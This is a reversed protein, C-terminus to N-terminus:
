QRQRSRQPRRNQAQELPTAWKCNGPEYDGDNDIREISHRISPRPGIDCMFVEFSLAWRSCVNIGRGGYYPWSKCNPNRCRDLMSTWISFERTGSQRHKLNPKMQAACERQYCGCSSTAGHRLNGSQTIVEGGCDCLCLWRGDSQQETAVLRGFRKGRIEIKRM